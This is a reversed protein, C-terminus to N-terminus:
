KCLSCSMVVAILCEASTGGLSSLDIYDFRKITISFLVPKSKAPVFEFLFPQPPPLASDTLQLRQLSNPRDM